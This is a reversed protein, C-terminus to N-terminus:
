QMTALSDEIPELDTARFLCSSKPGVVYHMAQAVSDQLRRGRLSRTWVVYPKVNCFTLDSLRVPLQKAATISSHKRLLGIYAHCHVQAQFRSQDGMEMCSCCSVFGLSTRMRKIFDVFSQFYVRHGPRTTLEHRLQDRGIGDRIWALVQPDDVGLTPHYTLLLGLTLVEGSESADAKFLDWNDKDSVHLGSPAQKRVCGQLHNCRIISMARKILHWHYKQRKSLKTWITTACLRGEKWSDQNGRVYWYRFEAFGGQHMSRTLRDPAHVNAPHHMLMGLAKSDYPGKRSIRRRVHLEDLLKSENIAFRLLGAHSMESSADEQGHHNETVGSPPCLAPTRLPLDVHELLTPLDIGVTDHPECDADLDPDHFTSARSPAEHDELQTEGDSSSTAYGDLIISM